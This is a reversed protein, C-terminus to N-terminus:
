KFLQISISLKTTSLNLVRHLVYTQNGTDMDPLKCGDIVNITPSSFGKAETLVQLCVIFM